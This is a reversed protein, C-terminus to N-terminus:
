ASDPSEVTLRLDLARALGPLPGVPIRDQSQARTARRTKRYVRSSARRCPRARAERACTAELERPALPDARVPDAIAGPVHAGYVNGAPDSAVFEEAAIASPIEELEDGSDGVM